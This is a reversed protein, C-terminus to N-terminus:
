PRSVHVPSRSCFQTVRTSNPLMPLIVPSASRLLPPPAATQPLEAANQSMSIPRGNGNDTSTQTARSTSPVHNVRAQLTCLPPPHPPPTGNLPQLAQQLNRGHASLRRGKVQGTLRAVSPLLHARAHLPRPARTRIFLAGSFPHVACMKTTVLAMNETKSFAEGARCM